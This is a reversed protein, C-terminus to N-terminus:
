DRMDNDFSPRVVQNPQHGLETVTLPANEGNYTIALLKGDPTTEKKVIYYKGNPPQAAM